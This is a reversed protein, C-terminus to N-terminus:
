GSGAGKGVVDGQLPNALGVLILDDLALLALGRLEELEVRGTRDRCQLDAIPHQGLVGRDQM